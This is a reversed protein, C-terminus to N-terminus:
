VRTLREDREEAAGLIQNPEAVNKSGTSEEKRHVTEVIHSITAYDSRRELLEAWIAADQLKNQKVALDHLNLLRVTNDPDLKFAELYDREADGYKGLCCNVNGIMMRVDAEWVKKEDDSYEGSSDQVLNLSYKYKEISADYQGLIRLATGMDYQARDYAKSNVEIASFIALAQSAYRKQESDSLAKNRALTLYNLGAEKLAISPDALDDSKPQQRQIVITEGPGAGPATGKSEPERLHKMVVNWALVTMGVVEAAFTGILFQTTTESKIAGNFCQLLGYILVGNAAVIIALLGFALTSRFGPM